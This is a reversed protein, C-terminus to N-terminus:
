NFGHVSPQAYLLTVEDADVLAVEAISLGALECHRRVVRAAAVADPDGRLHYVRGSATTVERAMMDVDAIGSSIRGRGDSTRYGVLRIFGEVRVFHWALLEVEPEEHVPKVSMM